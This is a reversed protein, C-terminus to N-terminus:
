LLDAFKRDRQKKAIKYLGELYDYWEDSYHYEGLQMWNGSIADGMVHEGVFVPQRYWRIDVTGAYNISPAKIYIFDDQYISNSGRSANVIVKAMYAIHNTNRKRFHRKLTKM